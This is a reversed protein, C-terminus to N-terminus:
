PVTVLAFDDYDAEAVSRTGDADTVVGVYLVKQNACSGGYESRYLACLDVSEDRWTPGAAEARLGVQLLGRQHTGVPGPKALWGLKFGKGGSLLGPKEFVVYLSAAVDVWPDGEVRPHQTVRWRWRLAKVKDLTIGDSALAKGFHMAPVKSAQADHRAHLFTADGERQVSYVRALESASHGSPTGWGLSTTSGGRFSETWATRSGEDAHASPSSAPLALLGLGLTALVPALRRRPVDSGYRESARAGLAGAGRDLTSSM